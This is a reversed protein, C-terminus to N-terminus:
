KGGKKTKRNSKQLEEWQYRVIDCAAQADTMGSGAYAERIAKRDKAILRNLERSPTEWGLCDALKSISALTFGRAGYPKGTHQNLINEIDDLIAEAVKVPVEVTKAKSKATKKMHRRQTSPAAMVPDAHKGDTGAEAGM